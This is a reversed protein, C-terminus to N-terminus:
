FWYFLFIYLIKFNFFLFSPLIFFFLKIFTKFFIYLNNSLFCFILNIKIINIIITDAANVCIVGFVIPHNVSSINVFASTDNSFTIGKKTNINITFTTFSIIFIMLLTNTSSVAVLVSFFALPITILARKIAGKDYKLFFIVPFICPLNFLHRSPVILSSFSSKISKAGAINLLIAAIIVINKVNGIENANSYSSMDIHFVLQSLKMSIFYFVIGIILLILYKFSEKYNEKKDLILKLNYIVFLTVILSLYAQYMSLSLVILIIPIIYKLYKNKEKYFIYISSVSGLFAFTYGISCYNFLLTSSTIPSLVIILILLIKKIKDKINFLDILLITSISIFIYSILLDIHPVTIFSKLIGIIYLGFRGLSIEWSYGKYFYNNLLIDASIINKTMLPLHILFLLTIILLLNKYEKKILTKM